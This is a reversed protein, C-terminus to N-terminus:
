ASQGVRLTPFAGPVNVDTSISTERYREADAARAGVAEGAYRVADGDLQTAAAEQGAKPLHAPLSDSAALRLIAQAM